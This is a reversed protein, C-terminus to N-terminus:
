LAVLHVPTLAKTHYFREGLRVITICQWASLHDRNQVVSQFRRTGEVIGGIVRM